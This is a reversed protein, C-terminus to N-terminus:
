QCQREGPGALIEVRRTPWGGLVKSLAAFPLLFTWGGSREGSRRAMKKGMEDHRNSRVGMVPVDM